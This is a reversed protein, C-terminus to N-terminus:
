RRIATEMQTAATHGMSSPATSADMPATMKVPRTAFRITTCTLSPAEVSYKRVRLSTAM